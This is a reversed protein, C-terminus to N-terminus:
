PEIEIVIKGRVRGEEMLNWVKKWADNGEELIGEVVEQVVAEVGDNEALQAVQDLLESRPYLM